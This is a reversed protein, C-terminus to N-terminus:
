CALVDVTVIREMGIRNVIKDVCEGVKEILICKRNKKICAVGVSGSGAFQDLVVENELTIYELLQEFLESPKESQCIKNQNAVYRCKIFFVTTNGCNRTNEVGTCIHSTSDGGVTNGNQRFVKSPAESNKRPYNNRCESCEGTCNADLGPFFLM